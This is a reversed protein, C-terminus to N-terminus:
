EEEEDSYMGNDSVKVNEVKEIIHTCLYECKLSTM